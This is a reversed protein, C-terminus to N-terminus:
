NIENLRVTRHEKHSMLAARAMLEAQYGDEVSCVVPKGALVAEAFAHLEEVYAEKYRELFFNKPCETYVHGRKSLKVTTETDNGAEVAGESGFVEIRQDYGYVAQRSNDIVGIAGNSFTVTMVATDVDDYKAFVPDILNAAKVTVDEVKSGCLFRIMDFDHISMDMFMGGSGKIYHEPPIEPDRSSIRFLHPEGIEGHEILEALKRFHKDFRRNFGAQFTVGTKEIMKKIEKTEEINFSIPKECFIHKGAHAAKKIFPVHTHTPSCILVAEIGADEFVSDPNNSIVSINEELVTGKLHDINLDAIMKLKMNSSKIINEAHLRGIRGAGIVAVTLRNM